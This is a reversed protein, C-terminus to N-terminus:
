SKEGGELVVWASVIATTSPTFKFRMRAFPDTTIYKNLKGATISISDFPKYSGRLDPDIEIDLTGPQDSYIYVAKKEYGTTLIEVGPYYYTGDFYEADSYQGSAGISYGDWVWYQRPPLEWRTLLGHDFEVLFAKSLTLVQPDDGISNWLNASAWLTDRCVALSEIHFSLKVHRYFQIGDFSWIESAMTSGRYSSTAFVLRDGLRTAPISRNSGGLMPFTFAQFFYTRGWLDLALSLGGNEDLFFIRGNGDRLVAVEKVGGLMVGYTHPSAQGIGQTINLTALSDYIYPKNMGGFAIRYKKLTYSGAGTRLFEGVWGAGLDRWNTLVFVNPTQGIFIPKVWAGSPLGFTTLDADLTWGSTDLVDMDGISATKMYIKTGINGLATTTWDGRVHMDSLYPLDQPYSVWNVGDLSYKNGAESYLLLFVNLKNQKTRFVTVPADEYGVAWYINGSADYMYRELVKRWTKGETNFEYINFQYDCRKVGKSDYWCIDRYLDGQNNFHVYIKNDFCTLPYASDCNDPAYYIRRIFGTLEDRLAQKFQGEMDLARMLKKKDIVISMSVM